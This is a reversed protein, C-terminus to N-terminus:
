FVSASNMNTTHNGNKVQPGVSTGQPKSNNVAIGTSLEIMSGGGNLYHKSAGTPM